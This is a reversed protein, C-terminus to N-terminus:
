VCGFIKWKRKKKHRKCVPSTMPEFGADGVLGKGLVNRKLGRRM